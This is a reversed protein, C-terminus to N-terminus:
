PVLWTCHYRLSLGHFLQGVHLLGGVVYCLAERNYTKTGLGRLIRSAQKKGCEYAESMIKIAVFAARIFRFHFVSRM